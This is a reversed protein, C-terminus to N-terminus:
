REGGAVATLTTPPLDGLAVDKSPVAVRMEYLGAAPLTLEVRYSGDPAPEARGRADGQGSVLTAVVQVDSLEPVPAGASDTLGFRLPFREGAPLGDSASLLEVAAPDTDPGPAPGAHRADITFCTLVSPEGLVVALDYTGPQTVALAASWVGPSSERLGRDVVTVARPTRGSTSFGGMPANMGPMYMYVYRDAPNAVLLESGHVSAMPSASSRVEAQAPPLEGVGVMVPTLPGPSGLQPLPVVAVQVSTSSRVFAYGDTFSVADPSGTVPTSSLTRGTTTDFVTMSDRAGSIAIGHRGGPAVALRSVDRAEDVRGVVRHTAADLAVTADDGALAAYLRGSGPADVLDTIRGDLRTQHVLETTGTDLVAVTGDRHAVVASGQGQGVAGTAAGPATHGAHEPPEPERDQGPFVPRLPGTGTTLTTVRRLDDTALVTVGGVGAEGPDNVVWLQDGSPHLSISTPSPGADVEELVRFSGTDIVAVKGAAPLTVFLRRGDRSQVWDEGPASLLPMAYLQSMGGVNVLPDIVSLSADDNLTVLHYSNLDVDPGAGLQGRSFVRAKDECSPAEQGPPASTRQLDAWVLPPSPSRLPTGTSAQTLVLQLESRGDQSQPQVSMTLRTGDSVATGTGSLVLAAAPGAEAAAEAGGAPQAATGPDSVLGRLALGAGLAAALAVLGVTLLPRRGPRAAGPAPRSGSRKSSSV